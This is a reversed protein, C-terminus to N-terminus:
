STKGRRKKQYIEVAKNHQSLTESFHHTGDNKSVFYLVEGDAPYLVAKIAEVGPNAIPGPPLGRILYTNYPTHRALDKRTLNGDFSRLGYIVTPDSELRMGKKLRNLFVRAILPREKACATEKEVISALTVVEATSLPIQKIREELPGVVEWFRRVMVKIISLPPLSRSFHYTDPYLYGELGPGPVGVAEAVAPDRALSLFPAKDVLGKDELAEAVQEVTYGEPITVPHAIVAGRSLTNLIAVPSMAPNLRYEGAKIDRSYGMLRAWLLFLDKARVLGRSELETAVANMTAGERVLFVQDPAKEKCPSILYYGFGVTLSVGLLFLLGLVL